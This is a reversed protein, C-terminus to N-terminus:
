RILQMPKLAHDLTDDLFPVPAVSGATYILLGIEIDDTVPTVPAVPDSPTLDHTVERVEVSFEDRLGGAIAAAGDEFYGAIVLNFGM